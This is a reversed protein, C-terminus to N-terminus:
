AARVMRPSALFAKFRQAVGPPTVTPRGLKAM